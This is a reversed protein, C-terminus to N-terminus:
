AAVDKVIEDIKKMVDDTLKPVLDLAKLNQELQEKKTAGLIACTVHPNKIVWAVALDTSTTGLEKALAQLKKVADIKGETLSKERLWEMDKGSMRSNEPIGNNYKGTLLGSALPSYATIGLGPDKFLPAFDKEVKARKFLNYEPQEVVPKILQYKEAAVVAEYIDQVEWESTGWYLIKGQQWLQHMTFVIDETKTKEDPRHCYFLDLYDVQLRQLAEDCAERLHKRSLGHQNPKNEKHWGFYAKSSVIYSSREWKKKKFVRGMMKESEGNAYIEANDFFNIGKDYAIGMMEDALTDDVKDSFSVWSGFGFISMELGTNGLIRYEM